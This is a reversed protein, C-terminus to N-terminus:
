KLLFLSKDNGAIVTKGEASSLTVERTEHNIADVRATLQMSISAAIAPKEATQQTIEQAISTSAFTLAALLPLTNLLKM